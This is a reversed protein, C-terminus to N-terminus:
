MIAVVEISTHTYAQKCGDIDIGALQQGPSAETNTRNPELRKLMHPSITSAKTSTQKAATLQRKM